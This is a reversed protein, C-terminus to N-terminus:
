KRKKSKLNESEIWVIIMGFVILFTPVVGALTTLFSNLAAGSYPFGNLPVLLYLGALLLLVGTALRTCM